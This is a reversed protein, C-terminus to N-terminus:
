FGVKLTLFGRGAAADPERDPLAHRGRAPRHRQAALADARDLDPRLRRATDRAGQRPPDREHIQRAVTDFLGVRIRDHRLQLGFETRAPLKGIVHDLAHSADGPVFELLEGPRLPPRSKLLEARVTGQSAADSSGVANDYHRGTIEVKDLQTSRAALQVPEAPADTQQAHAGPWALAAAFAIARPLAQRVDTPGPM